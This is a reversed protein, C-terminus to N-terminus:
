GRIQISNIKDKPLYEGLDKKIMKQTTNAPAILLCPRGYSKWAGLFDMYGIRTVKVYNPDNIFAVRKKDDYGAFVVAHGERNRTRYGVIPPYNQVLLVKLVNLNANSVMFAKMGYHSEAIEKLQHFTTGGRKTRKQLKRVIDGETVDNGLYNLVMRLSDPGCDTGKQKRPNHHLKHLRFREPLKQEEVTGKEQSVKKQELIKMSSCAIFNLLLALIIFIWELAIKFRLKNMIINGQRKEFIDSM